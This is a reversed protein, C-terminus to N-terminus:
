VMVSGGNLDIGQGTMGDAADSLLYRVSAAIEDPRLMRGLPVLRMAQDHFATVDIGQARAGAEMGERAMETDVWGPCIANVTIARPALELALARTFGIVGHKSACYATYGPVGFRGLCSAVNVIRGGRPMAPLAAKTVLYTGTLNTDVIAHWRADDDDQALSNPGGAGADNVVIGIEGQEKAVAGVAERVAVADRVDLVVVSARGGEAVVARATAELLERRRGACAVFAGDHGLAMAVARGIGTGAGTVLAVAGSVKM